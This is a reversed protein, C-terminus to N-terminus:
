SARPYFVLIPACMEKTRSTIIAAFFYRDAAILLFPLRWFQARRKEDKEIARMLRMVM